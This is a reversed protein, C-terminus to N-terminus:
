KAPLHAVACAFCLTSHYPVLWIRDGISIKDGCSDCRGNRKADFWRGKHVKGMALPEKPARKVPAAPFLLELQKKM